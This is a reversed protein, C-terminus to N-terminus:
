TTRRRSGASCRACSTSGGAGSGVGELVLLPVPEVVVTEAYRGALWDWRRFSGPRGLALPELLDGLQADIRPLGSWGEFLDDM